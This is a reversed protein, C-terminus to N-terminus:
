GTWNAKWLEPFSSKGTNAATFQDYLSGEPDAEPMIPPTIYPQPSATPTTPTTPITPALTSPRQMAVGGGTMGTPNASLPGDGWPAYGWSYDGPVGQIPNNREWSEYDSAEGPAAGYTPSTDTRAWDPMNAQNSNAFAKGSKRFNEFAMYSSSDAPAGTAKAWDDFGPNYGAEWTNPNAVDNWVRKPPKGALYAQSAAIRAAENAKSQAYAQQQSLVAGLALPNQNYYKQTAKQGASLKEKAM